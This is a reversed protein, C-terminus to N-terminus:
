MLEQDKKEMYIRYGRYFLFLALVLDLIVTYTTTRGRVLDFILLLVMVSGAIIYVYFLKTNM